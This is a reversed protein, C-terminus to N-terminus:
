SDAYQALWVTHQGCTPDEPTYRLVKFGHEALLERYEAPDLSAHYIPADAVTGVAEGAIHGATFMLTARPACHAAFTAFMARQDDASLHFFSNWALVGDFRQDLNLSRMDAKVVEAHPLNKAYLQTMTDTADVGTLAAGREALYTAMPQGSGCGLDLVRVLGTARPAATLFRDLWQKEMLSRNRAKAWLHGVREYTPIVDSAQMPQVHVWGFVTALGVSFTVLKSADEPRVC